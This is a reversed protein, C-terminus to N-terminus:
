RSEDKLAKEQKEKLSLKQYLYINFWISLMFLGICVTIFLSTYSYKETIFMYGSQLNSCLYYFLMSLLLVSFTLGLEITSFLTYFKSTKASHPNSLGCPKEM